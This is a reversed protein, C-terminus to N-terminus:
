LWIYHSLLQTPCSNTSYPTKQWSFIITVVWVLSWGWGLETPSSTFINYPISKSFPTFRDRGLPGHCIPNLSPLWVTSQWVESSYFIYHWYSVGKECRWEKPSIDSSFVIFTQCYTRVTTLTHFCFINIFDQSEVFKRVQAQKKNLRYDVKTVKYTKNARAHPTGTPWREPPWSAVVNNAVLFTM